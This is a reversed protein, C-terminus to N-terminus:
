QKRANIASHAVISMDEITFPKVFYFFIGEQRVKKQVELSDNATITIIPVDKDLKRVSGVVDCNANLEINAIILVVQQNILKELVDGLRLAQEVSLDEQEFQVSFDRIFNQDNDIILITQTKM